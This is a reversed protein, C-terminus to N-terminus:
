LSLEQELLVQRVLKRHSKSIPLLTGNVLEVEEYAYRSIYNINVIYSQHIVLFMPPLTKAVNRLKGYFERVCEGRGTGSESATCTIRVTRGISYFYLIKRYAVYYYDKGVQFQFRGISQSLIRIALDMIEEIKKRSIPKVLFEMPQTAFLRHAYAEKYSIYIIQMHRDGLQNRIYAGIEMGNVQYLEIDLFLIDLSNGAALYQQLKEGSNWIETELEINKRAGYEVLVEEMFSCVSEGDDCIGVKYM